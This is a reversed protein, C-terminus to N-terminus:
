RTQLIFAWPAWAWTCFSLACCCLVVLHSIASIVALQVKQELVPQSSAIAEAATVRQLAGAWFAARPATCRGLSHETQFVGAWFSATNPICRGLVRSHTCHGQGFGQHSQINTCCSGGVVPLTGPLARCGSSLLSESSLTMVNIWSLLREEEAPKRGYIFQVQGWQASSIM